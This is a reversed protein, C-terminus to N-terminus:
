NSKLTVGKPLQSNDSLFFKYANYQHGYRKMKITVGLPMVSIDYFLIMSKIHDISIRPLIIPM